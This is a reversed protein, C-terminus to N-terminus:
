MSLLAFGWIPGCRSNYPIRFHSNQLQDVGADKIREAKSANIGQLVELEYQEKGGEEDALTLAKAGQRRVIKYLSDTPFCGLAVLTYLRVDPNVAHGIVYALPVLVVLRFTYTYLRSPVIDRRSFRQLLDYGIWIYAGVLAYAIDVLTGNSGDRDFVAGVIWALAGLLALAYGTLPVLYSHWGFRQDYFQSFHTESPHETESLKAPYFKKYYAEIQNGVFYELVEQRRERFGYLSYQIIPAIAIFLAPVM